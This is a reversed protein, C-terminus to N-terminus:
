LWKSYAWRIREIVRMQRQVGTRVDILEDVDELFERYVQGPLVAKAWQRLIHVDCLLLGHDKYYLEGFDTPTAATLVRDINRRNNAIKPPFPMAHRAMNSKCKGFCECCGGKSRLAGTATEIILCTRSGSYSEM